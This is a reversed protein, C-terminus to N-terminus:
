HSQPVSLFRVSNLIRKVSQPMEKGVPWRAAFMYFRREVCVSRDYETFGVAPVALQWELGSYGQVTVDKFSGKVLNPQAGRRALERTENWVTECDKKYNTVRFTVVLQPSLHVTYTTVDPAALDNRREPLRVREM